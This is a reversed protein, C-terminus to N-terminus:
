TPRERRRRRQQRRRRTEGQQRKRKRGERGESSARTVAISASRLLTASRWCCCAASAADACAACCVSSCPLGASSPNHSTCIEVRYSLLQIPAKGGFTISFNTISAHQTERRVGRQGKVRLGRSGMQGWQRGYKRRDEGGVKRWVRM